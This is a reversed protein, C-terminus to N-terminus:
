VTSAPTPAIVELAQDLEAEQITSVAMLNCTVEYGKDFADNIMDVAEPMQNAYFAVRIQMLVSKEKPQIDTKYDCKGADAMAALKLGTKNDGVIRRIADEECFKWDGFKDKAFLRKASKYGIEM